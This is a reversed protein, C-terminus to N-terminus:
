SGCSETWGSDALGFENSPFSMAESLTFYMEGAMLKGTVGLCTVWYRQDEGGENAVSLLFACTRELPGDGPYGSPFKPPDVRFFWRVPNGFVENPITQDDLM